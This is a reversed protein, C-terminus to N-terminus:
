DEVALPYLSRLCLLPWSLRAASTPTNAELLFGVQNMNAGPLVQSDMTSYFLPSRALYRAEVERRRNTKNERSLSRFDDGYPNQYVLGGRDHLEVDPREERVYHLYALSYFADDGGDMFLATGQPLTRLMARGYDLVLPFFRHASEQ